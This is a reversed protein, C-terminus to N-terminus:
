MKQGMIPTTWTSKTARYVTAPEGGYYLQNPGIITMGLRKMVSFSPLNDPNAIAYIQTLNQAHFGHEMVTAAMETAYGQGWSDAGLHWGVEVDHTLADALGPLHKLM